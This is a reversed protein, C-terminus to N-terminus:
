KKIVLKETSCCAVLKEYVDPAVNVCGKTVTRRVSPDISHLKEVRKEKTRLTWVRHIGLWRKDDEAFQLVDGGYGPQATIRQILQYEGPLTDVGVLANHCQGAFCIVALTLDVLVM